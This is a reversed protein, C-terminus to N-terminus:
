GRRPWVSGATRLASDILCLHLGLHCRIASRSDIRARAGIMCRSPASAILYGCNHMAASAHASGRAGVCLRVIQARRCAVALARDHRSRLAARREDRHPFNPRWRREDQGGERPLRRFDDQVAPLCTALWCEHYVLHMCCRRRGSIQRHSPQPSAAPDDPYEAPVCDIKLNEPPVM